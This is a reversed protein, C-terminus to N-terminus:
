SRVPVITFVFSTADKNTNLTQRTYENLRDITIPGIEMQSEGSQTNITAYLNYVAFGGQSRVM